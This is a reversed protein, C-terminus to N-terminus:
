WNSILHRTALGSKSHLVEKTKAHLTYRWFCFQVLHAAPQWGTKLNNYGHGQHYKLIVLFNPHHPSGHQWTGTHILLCPQQTPTTDELIWHATSNKVYLNQMHQNESM